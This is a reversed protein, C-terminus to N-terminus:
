KQRNDVKETLARLMNVMTIKLDQDSFELMGAMDSQPESAQKTEEFQKKGKLIGQSKHFSSM